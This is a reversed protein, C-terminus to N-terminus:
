RGVRGFPHEGLKQAKAPKLRAAGIFEAFCQNSVTDCKELLQAWTPRPYQGRHDWVPRWRRESCLCWLLCLRENAIVVPSTIKVVGHVGGSAKQRFLCCLRVNGDDFISEGIKVWGLTFGGSIS